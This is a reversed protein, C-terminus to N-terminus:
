IWIDVCVSGRGGRGACMTMYMGVTAVVCLCGEVVNPANTVIQLPDGGAGVDVKLQKLKDKGTVGELELVQSDWFSFGAMDNTITTTAAATNTTTTM